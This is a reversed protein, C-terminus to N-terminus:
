NQATGPFLVARASGSNGLEDTVIVELLNQPLIQPPTIASIYELPGSRVMLAQRSVEAGNWQVVIDRLPSSPIISARVSVSPTVAGGPAPSVLLVIPAFAVTGSPSVLQSLLAGTNAAGWALVGIEWNNFQPDRSPDAPREGSPANRDMWFLEAHLSGDPLIAGGIFPSAPLLPEPRPFLENPFKQLAEVLFANWIPIAALLSSGRRHMPANDNNGAWVGVTLSPTYGLAWADRYDNSTGTKLAVDREGFTTLSISSGFLGRRADVDSLIDTITRAFNADVVSVGRDASSELVRGDGSRVELVTVPDHRVGDAALVSYAGVLEQLRVEGGGLVLSLGYRSPDSLTSIGFGELLKLTDALGSIYLAKVAPINVSQALANRLPIPGRFVGDFNKPHFCEDGEDKTHDPIPPCAPDQPVFETPVDFFPTEPTLGKQIAALYVFPKLASGPQRLGQTAVNFNGENATDFYDRSGVLALTQGTRPDQAVLAGNTGGYLEENRAVGERVVREAIQQLDWDLTTVVLLGGTRVVDEGYTRVLDDQVRLVFHPAKMGRDQERFVIKEALADRLEDESITGLSRMKRLVNQQRAFLENTHSGFPSYYSPARPLAALVASEALTLDKVPKGFFAGAAAEAGYLTSGYPIENLYLWLIQDKTYHRDLYVALVLERLKRIITREPSLFANRALQQTITSGGQGAYGERLRLNVLAARVIARWDFGPETYFNEDEITVTAQKLRLPLEEFPVVTRKQGASIEYLLVKGTRDYIKTSQQVRRSDIQELSPLDRALYILGAAGFLIGAVLLGAGIFLARRAIFWFSRPKEM